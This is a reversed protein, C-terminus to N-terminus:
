LNCNLDIFLILIESYEPVIVEHIMPNALATDIETFFLIVHLKNNMLM